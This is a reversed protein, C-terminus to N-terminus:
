IDTLILLDKRKTMKAQEKRVPITKPKKKKFLFQCPKTNKIIRTKRKTLNRKRAKLGLNKYTKKNKIRPNKQPIKLYKKCKSKPLKSKPNKDSYKEKIFSFISKTNLFTKGSGYEPKTSPRRKPFFFARPL